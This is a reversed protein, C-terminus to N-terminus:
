GVIHKPSNAFFCDATDAVMKALRQQVEMSAWAVHPTLVLRPHKCKVLPSDPPPPETDLVDIGAGAITGNELAAVLDESNVLAGRATNILVASKKMMALSKSNIMHKNSSDLPCHLSVVDSTALLEGFSLRELGDSTGDKKVLYRVKMGLAECLKGTGSGLSGSGIIGVQKGALEIIPHTHLCFIGSKSWTGDSSLLSYPVLSRMVAFMLGVAHEIVSSASYGPSNAVAINKRKCEELDIIDYGTAAVVILKLNQAKVLESSGIKVKNTFAVDCKDIRSATEAPYTMGHVQWEDVCSPKVLDCAITSADLFVGTRKESM